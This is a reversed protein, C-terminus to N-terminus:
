EKCRDVLLRLALTYKWRFVAFINIRLVILKLRQTFFAAPIASDNIPPEIM